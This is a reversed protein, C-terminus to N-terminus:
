LEERLSTVFAFGSLSRIAVRVARKEDARGVTGGGGESGSHAEPDRASGHVPSSCGKNEGGGRTM